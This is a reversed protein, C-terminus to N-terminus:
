RELPANLLAAIARAKTSVGVGSLEITRWSGRVRVIEGEERDAVRARLSCRDAIRTRRCGGRRDWFVVFVRKGSIAVTVRRFWPLLWPSSWGDAVLISLAEDPELLPTLIAIASDVQHAIRNERRSLGRDSWFEEEYDPV